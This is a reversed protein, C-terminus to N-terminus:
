DVKGAPHTGIQGSFVVNVIGLRVPSLFGMPNAICVIAPPIAPAHSATFRKDEPSQMLVSISTDGFLKDALRQVGDLNAHLKRPTAANWPYTLTGNDM